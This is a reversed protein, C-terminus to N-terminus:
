RTNPPEASRNVRRTMSMDRLTRSTFKHGKSHEKILVIWWYDVLAGTSATSQFDFSGSDM